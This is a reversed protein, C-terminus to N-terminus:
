QSWASRTFCHIRASLRHHDAHGAPDKNVPILVDRMIDTMITVVVYTELAGLLVALSAQVSQASLGPPRAAPAIGIVASASNGWQREDFNGSRITAVTIIGCDGRAQLDDAAM